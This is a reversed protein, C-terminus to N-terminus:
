HPVPTACGAVPAPTPALVPPPPFSQVGSGPNTSVGGHGHFLFAIPILLLPWWASHHTQPAPTMQSITTMAPTQVLTAVPTPAASPQPSPSDLPAPAPAPLSAIVPPPAHHPKATKRHPLSAIHPRPRRVISLNGCRAPVFLAVTQAPEALDIEWGRTSAPIIVNREVYVQGASAWSMADLHRPLTVYTLRGSSIRSAFQAYEAASLGLQSGAAKFVAEDRAVDNRLQATSSIEGILPATGLQAIQHPQAFAVSPLAVALVTATLFRLLHM